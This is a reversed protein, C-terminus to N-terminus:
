NGETKIKDQAQNTSQSDSSKDEESSGSDAAQNQKTPDVPPKGAANQQELEAATTPDGYTAPDFTYKIYATLDMINEATLKGEFSNMKTPPGYGKVVHKDPYLISSRIYEEDVKVKSDDYMTEETGWILNLAPGTAAKGDVKHCGSCNMQFLREGTKWPPYKARVWETNRSREADSAHVQCLTRMRSHETGCYETCALRYKGVLTPQIFAYTYRGPVIDMKQRFESVFMSHLVDTSQMILKVPKNVVLHLQTSTDGNPYRFMWNWRSATVYIEEADDTPVRSKFYGDAGTYFFWVLIISPLVSWAVELVTNHSESPLPGVGPRRRYKFVFYFMVGVIIAFFIASIWTIAMFLFDTQAAFTSAQEPLWYGEQFINGTRDHQEAFSTDIQSLFLPLSSNWGNM